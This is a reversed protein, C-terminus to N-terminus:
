LIAPRPSASQAALEISCEYARFPVLESQNVLEAWVRSHTRYCDSEICSSRKFHRNRGGSIGPSADNLVSAAARAAMGGDVAALVRAQLDESYSQGQRWAM